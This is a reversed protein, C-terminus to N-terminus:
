PFYLTYNEEDQYQITDLDEDLERYLQLIRQGPPSLRETWREPQNLDYQKVLGRQDSLMSAQGQAGAPLNLSSKPYLYIKSESLQDRTYTFSVLGEDRHDELEYGELLHTLNEPLAQVPQVRFYVKFQKELLDWGLGYFKSNKSELFYPDLEVSHEQIVPLAAQLAPEPNAVSGYALRSSNVKDGHVRHSYSYYSFHEYGSDSVERFSSSLAFCTELYAKEAESLHRRFRFFKRCHWQFLYRHYNLLNSM